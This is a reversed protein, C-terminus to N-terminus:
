DPRHAGPGPRRHADPIGAGLHHDGAAFGAGALGAAFAGSLEDVERRTLAGDFYRIIPAGPDRQVCAGFMDLVSGFEVDIGYAQGEDYRALWPRQDYISM